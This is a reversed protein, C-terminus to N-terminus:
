DGGGAVGAVPRANGAFYPSGPWVTVLSTGACPGAEPRIGTRTRTGTGVRTRAATGTRAGAGAGTRAGSGAGAATRAGAGARTRTSARRHPGAPCPPAATVRRRRLPGQYTVPRWRLRGWRTGPDAAGAQPCPWPRRPCDCLRHARPPGGCRDSSPGNGLAHRRDLRFVGGDGPRDGRCPDGLRAPAEDDGDGRLGAGGALGSSCSGVAVQM